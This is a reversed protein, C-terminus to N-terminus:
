EDLDDRRLIESRISPAIRDLEEDMQEITRRQRRIHSRLSFWAPLALVAGLFLGVVVSGLIIVHIPLPQTSLSMAYKLTVSEEQNYVVFILYLVVILLFFSLRIM